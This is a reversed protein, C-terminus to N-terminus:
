KGKLKEIEKKMEILHLTLEEIKELLKANMEGLDVGNVRVETASPIGPLHGKDKIHKEIEHLTPLQYAQTFVYDPWNSNEVKIERARINGNVALKYGKTDITGIGVNGSTIRLGNGQIDVYSKGYLTGPDLVVGTDWSIRMQQYDPAVWSGPTRHIGYSMPSPSFWTIGDAGNTGDDLNNFSLKAGPNSAGLGVNGSFNHSPASFNLSTGYGYISRAPGGGVNDYFELFGYGDDRGWIQLAHAGSGAKIVIPASHPLKCLEIMTIFVKCPRVKVLAVFFCQYM